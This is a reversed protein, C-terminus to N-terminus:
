ITASESETPKDGEENNAGTDNGWEYHVETENKEILDKKEIMSKM